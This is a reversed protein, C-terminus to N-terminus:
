NGVCFMRYSNYRSGTAATDGNNFNIGKVNYSKPGLDSSIYFAGIPIGNTGKYPYMAVLEEQTPLRMGKAKCVDNADQWYDDYESSVVTIKGRPSYSGAPLSDSLYYDKTEGNITLSVKNATVCESGNFYTGSECNPIRICKGNNADSLLASVGLRQGDM